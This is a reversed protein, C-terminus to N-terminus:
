GEDTISVNYTAFEGGVGRKVVRQRDSPRDSAPRDHHDLCLLCLEDSVEPAFASWLFM